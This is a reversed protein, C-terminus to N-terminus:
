LSVIWNKVSDLAPTVACYQANALTELDEFQKPVSSYGIAYSGAIPNWANYPLASNRVRQLRDAVPKIFFTSPVDPNKLLQQKKVQDWTTRSIAYASKVKGTVALQRLAEGAARHHAHADMTSMSWHIANPYIGSMENMVALVSDVSLVDEVLLEYCYVSSANVLMEGAASRFETVRAKGVETISLPSYGSVIPDHKGKYVFRTGNGPSQLEGNILKIATTSSGSTLLVYILEYGLAIYESAILGFSLLEDDPHPSYFVVQKKAPNLVVENLQVPQPIEVPSASKPQTGKGSTKKTTVAAAEETTGILGSIAAGAAGAIVRRRSIMFGNSRPCLFLEGPL